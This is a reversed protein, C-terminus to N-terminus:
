QHQSITQLFELFPQNQAQKEMLKYHKYKFYWNLLFTAVALLLGVLVGFDNASMGAIVLGGSSAYTAITIKPDSM